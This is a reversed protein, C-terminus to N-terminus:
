RFTPWRLSQDYLANEKGQGKQRRRGLICATWGEHGKANLQKIYFSRRGTFQRIFFANRLSSTVERQVRHHPSPLGAPNVDQM